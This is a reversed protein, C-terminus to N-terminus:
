PVFMWGQLIVTVPTSAIAGGSLILNVVVEVSGDVSEKDPVLFKHSMQINGQLMASTRM